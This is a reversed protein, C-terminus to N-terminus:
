KLKKQAAILDTFMESGHGDAGMIPKLIHELAISAEAGPIKAIREVAIWTATEIVVDYYQDAADGSGAAHFLRALITLEGVDNVPGILEAIKKQESANPNNRATAAMRTLADLKAISRSVKAAHDDAFASGTIIALLLVLLSRM